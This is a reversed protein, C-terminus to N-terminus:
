GSPQMMAMGVQSAHELLADDDASREAQAFGFREVFFDRATTTLLVVEATAERAAEDLVAAVLRTGLGSRQLSPSVAM